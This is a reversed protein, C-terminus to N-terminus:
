DPMLNAPIPARRSPKIAPYNNTLYTLIIDETTPDFQWLKQTEQMWRITALWEDRNGSNSTVLKISHCASCNANVIEWGPTKILGSTEDIDKALAINLLNALLTATFLTTKM